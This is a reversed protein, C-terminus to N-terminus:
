AASVPAPPDNGPRLAYLVACFGLVIYGLCGWAIHEMPVGADILLGFLLPSLASLCVAMASVLGRVAGMNATGYLEALVANVMTHGCGIAIGAAMMYGLAALPHDFLALILVSLALPPMQVPMLRRATYRDILPGSLFAFTVVMGAYAIFTSALWSLTWGKADALHIQHFFFGTIIFAPSLVAPALLWFRLDRMVMGRTWQVQIAGLRTDQSKGAALHRAHREDHGRLLFLSLPLIVALLFGTSILWTTRWGVAAIVVVIVLPLVAESFPLGLTSVSLAKGRDRTFYRSMATVSALPMLGQGFLRLVFIIAPIAYGVPALAMAVTGVFLGAINVLTFKRLGLIDIFRGAWALTFGSALTGVFYYLGFDGHSLGFEGRIAASFLSIFYTQGYCSCFMLLMGYGLFRSNGLIFRLYNVLDSRSSSRNDSAAAPSAIAPPPAGNGGGTADALLWCGRVRRRHVRM